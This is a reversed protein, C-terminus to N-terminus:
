DHPHLTTVPFILRLNMTLICCSNSQEFNRMPATDHLLNCSALVQLGECAEPIPSVLSLARAISWIVHHGVKSYVSRRLSISALNLNSTLDLNSNPDLYSLSAYVPM